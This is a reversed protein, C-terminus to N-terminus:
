SGHTTTPALGPTAAHAKAFSSKGRNVGLCGSCLQLCSLLLKLMSCLHLPGPLVQNMNSLMSKDQESNIQAMFPNQQQEALLLSMHPKAPTQNCHQLHPATDIDVCANVLDASVSCASLRNWVPHKQCSIAGTVLPSCGDNYISCGDRICVSLDCDCPM